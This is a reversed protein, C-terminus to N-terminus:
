GVESALDPSAVIGGVVLLSERQSKQPRQDFFPLPIGRNEGLCPGRPGLHGGIDQVSLLWGRHGVQLLHERCGFVGFFTLNGRGFIVRCPVFALHSDLPRNMGSFLRLTRILSVILRDGRGGSSLLIVIVM